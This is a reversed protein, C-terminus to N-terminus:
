RGTIADWINKLLPTWVEQPTPEAPTAVETPPEEQRPRNRAWATYDAVHGAFHKSSFVYAYFSSGLILKGKRRGKSYRWHDAIWRVAERKDWGENIMTDLKDGSGAGGKHIAAIRDRDWDHFESYKRMYAATVIAGARPKGILGRKTRPVEKLLEPRHRKLWARADKLYPTGIQFLGVFGFRNVVDPDGSSETAILALMTGLELQATGVDMMAREVEDAWRTVRKTTGM